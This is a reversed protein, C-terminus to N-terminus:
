LLKSEGKLSRIEKILDTVKNTRLIFSVFVSICLSLFIFSGFTVIIALAPFYFHLSENIILVNEAILLIFKAFVLSGALIGGIIAFLGILGNELFVMLRIQKSSAGGSKNISVLSKRRSQLFSSM